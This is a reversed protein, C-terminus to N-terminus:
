SSVREAAIGAYSPGLGILERLDDNRTAENNLRDKIAHEPETVLGECGSWGSAESLPMAPNVAIAMWGASAVNVDYVEIPPFVRTSACAPATVPTVDSVTTM